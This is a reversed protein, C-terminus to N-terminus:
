FICGGGLGTAMPLKKPKPGGFLAGLGGLQFM